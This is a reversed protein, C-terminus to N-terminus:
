KTGALAGPTQERSRYRIQCGALRRLDPVRELSESRGSLSIPLGKEENRCGGHLVSHVGFQFQSM